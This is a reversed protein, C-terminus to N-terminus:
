LSINVFRISFLIRTELAERFSLLRKKMSALEKESWAAEVAQKVSRWIRNKGGKVKLKVLREILEEALAAAEDCLRSFSTWQSVDGESDESKGEPYYSLKLKTVLDRLDTTVLELEDNIRLTGVSSKYLETAQSLLKTGFDVFQIINGAVSLATLPDM